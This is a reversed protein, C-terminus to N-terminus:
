FSGRNGSIQQCMGGSDGRIQMVKNINGYYSIMDVLSQLIVLLLGLNLRLLSMSLAFTVFRFTIERKFVGPSCLDLV